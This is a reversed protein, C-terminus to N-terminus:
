KLQVVYLRIETKGINKTTYAPGPEQFTVQGAKLTVNDKKGDSYIRQITGGKLYRVVRYSSSPIIANEAGPKYTVEFVQVKANELLVKRIAMAKAMKEQGMASNVVAGALLFAPVLLGALVAASRKM